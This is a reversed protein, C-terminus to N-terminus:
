DSDIFGGIEEREAVTGNGVRQDAFEIPDRRWGRCFTLPPVSLCNILLAEDAQGIRRCNGLGCGQRKEACTDEADGAEDTATEGGLRVQTRKSLQANEQM